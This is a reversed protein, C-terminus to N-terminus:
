CRRLRATLEEVQKSFTMTVSQECGSTRVYIAASAFENEAYLSVGDSAVHGMLTGSLDYKTEQWTGTISSGDVQWDSKLQIQMDGNNCRLNQRVKSASEDTFYTVVCKFPDTRGSTYRVSGEGAWRGALGAVSGGDDVDASAVDVTWEESAAPEVCSGAALLAAGMLWRRM